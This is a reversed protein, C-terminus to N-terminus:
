YTVFVIVTDYYFGGPKFQGGPLVGDVLFVDDGGSALESITPHPNTFGDDGWAQGYLYSGLDYEVLNGLGDAVRRKDTVSNYNQGADLAITFNTGASCSVTISGTALTDVAKDAVYFAVPTTSVSCARGVLATVDLKNTTAAAQAQGFGVISSLLVLM